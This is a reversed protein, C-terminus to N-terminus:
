THKVSAPGIKCVEVSFGASECAEMLDKAQLRGKPCFAVVAGGSGTFKCAAGVSRATEVMKINIDGLVDDGFIQRRLDFNRDMLTALSVYDRDLLSARGKEAVQAVDAMLERIRKDGLLWKKRVDSHVKGSDSPNKCYILYLPPLLEPDMATYIGKKQSEMSTKDFDMYVLGGYVQVVRDQLGATIGLEEEVRLILSPLGDVQAQKTPIDFYELLCKLAAWVIASSGSLGTQRPINTDYSLTFGRDHLSNGKGDVAHKFVDFFVKCAAMLLRVGGYYGEGRIRDAMQQLSGFECPDHVAHPLFRITPSPELVVTAYFNALSFSITKGFYADSPNGLFGVRAYARQEIRRASEADM